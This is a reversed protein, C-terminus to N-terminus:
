TRTKSRFNLLKFDSFNQNSFSLNNLFTLPTGQVQSLKFHNTYPTFFYTFLSTQPHHMYEFPRDISPNCEFLSHSKPNLAGPVAKHMHM